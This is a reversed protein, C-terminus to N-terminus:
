IKGVDESNSFNGAQTQFNKMTSLYIIIKRDYSVFFDPNSM